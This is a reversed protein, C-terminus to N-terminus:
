KNAFNTKISKKLLSLYLSFEIPYAKIYTTRCLVQFWVRRGKLLHEEIWRRSLVSWQRCATRRKFTRARTRAFTFSFHFGGTVDRHARWLRYRAKFFLHSSPSFTSDETYLPYDRLQNLMFTFPKFFRSFPFSLFPTYVYDVFLVFLIVSGVESHVGAPIRSGFRKKRRIIEELDSNPFSFRKREPVLRFGTKRNLKEFFISGM